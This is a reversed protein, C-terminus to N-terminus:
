KVRTASIIQVPKALMQGRMLGSGDNKDIKGALIKKVVDMGSVVHGFAAFGQADDSKGPKADMYSQTGICIFFDGNATGPADRAMSITGNVHKIGTLSTPEHKIPVLMRRYEHFIGGQIFGAGRNNASRYFKTGDLKKQDVYALFNASTIPARKAELEIVIKGLSTQLAVRPKAPPSTAVAPMALLSLLALLAFRKLM